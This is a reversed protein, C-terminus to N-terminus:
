RRKFRLDPGPRAQRQAPTGPYERRSGTAPEATKYGELGGIVPNGVESKTKIGFGTGTDTQITTVSLGNNADDNNLNTSGNAHVASKNLKKAEETQARLTETALGALANTSKTEADDATQEVDALDIKTVGSVWTGSEWAGGSSNLFATVVTTGTDISSVQWTGGTYIPTVTSDAATYTMDGAVDVDFHSGDDLTISGAAGPTSTTDFTVLGLVSGVVAQSLSSLHQEIIKNAKDPLIDETNKLRDQLNNLVAALDDQDDLNGIINGWTGAPILQWDDDIFGTGSTFSSKARYLNGLRLIVADKRYYRATEFDHIGAAAAAKSEMMDPVPGSAAMNNKLQLRSEKFSAPNGQDDTSEIEFFDTDKETIAQPLDGIHELLNDAM